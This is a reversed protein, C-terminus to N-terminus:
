EGSESKLEKYLKRALRTMHDGHAAFLECCVEEEQEVTLNASHVSMADHYSHFIEHKVVTLTLEGENFHMEKNATTVFAADSDNFKRSFSDESHLYVKWTNGLIQVKIMYM